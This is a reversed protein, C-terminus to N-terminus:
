LKKQHGHNCLVDLVRQPTFPAHRLRIGLAHYVANAIAPLPGNISIEAISKAGFPGTPEHTPVLIVKIPPVDRASFISYYNFNPNLMRGRADFHFEEILAFSIGNVIAGETQGEALAPNIATGCDVAAVYELM